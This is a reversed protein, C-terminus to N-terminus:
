EPLVLRATRWGRVSNILAIGQAGALDSVSVSREYMAGEKLLEARYIGPLCGDSIPPTFWKGGLKVAVNAITSETIMGQENTLIVDNVQPHAARAAEYIERRTTKHFLFPSRTDVPELAVAVTVPSSNLEFAVTEVTPVGERSVMLRVRLASDGGIGKLAARIAEDVWPIDFFRASEKARNLHQELFKWGEDPQWLITELLSFDASGHRLVAAKMDLEAYEGEPTSDWTIGGGVGYQASGTESDIVATRIAVSFSAKPGQDGVPAVFGIAGCYVGRPSPELETIIQMTRQKPAGTISGCPFLGRFVEFLSLEPQVAAGITSTLQWVTDYKEATLLEEVEVSGFEAIHGLDNRLLDVIMVNEAADKESGMLEALREIDESEWRGRPATGKM